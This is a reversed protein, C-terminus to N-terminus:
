ITGDKDTKEQTLLEKAMLKCNSRYAQYEEYEAKHTIISGNMINNILAFEDDASYRERILEAVKTKYETESYRPLDAVAVEEWYDLDAATVTAHHNHTSSDDSGIRRLIHREDSDLQWMDLHPNYTKKM